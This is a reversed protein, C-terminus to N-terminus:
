LRRRAAAADDANRAKGANCALANVVTYLLRVLGPADDAPRPWCASVVACVTVTLTIWGEWSEPLLALLSAVADASEAASTEAAAPLAPLLLCCLLLFRATKM